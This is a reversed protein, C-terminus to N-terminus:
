ARSKAEGSLPSGEHERIAQELLHAYEQQQSAKLILSPNTTADRPEYARMAEFDGTDAVVITHKKLQDLESGVSGSSPTATSTM